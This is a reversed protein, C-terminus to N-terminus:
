REWDFTFQDKNEIKEKLVIRGGDFYKVPNYATFYGWNQRIAELEATAEQWEQYTMFIDSM